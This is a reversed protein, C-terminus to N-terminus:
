LEKELYKRGASMGLDERALRMAKKYTDEMEGGARATGYTIEPERSVKGMERKKIGGM